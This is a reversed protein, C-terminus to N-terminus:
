NYLPEHGVTDEQPGRSTTSYESARPAATYSAREERVKRQSEREKIFDHILMLVADEIPHAKKTEPTSVMSMQVASWNKRSFIFVMAGISGFLLVLGSIFLTTPYIVGEAEYAFSGEVLSIFFGGVLFLSCILASCLLLAIKRGQQMVMDVIPLASGQMNAKYRGLFFSFLVTLLRLM